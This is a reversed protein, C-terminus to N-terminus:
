NKGQGAKRILARIVNGDRSIDLLRHGTETCWAPMDELFGPDDSHVEVISGADVDKLARATRVIPLPCLLGLTTVIVAPSEDNNTEPDMVPLIVRDGRFM